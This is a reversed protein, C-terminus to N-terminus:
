YSREWENSLLIYAGGDLVCKVESLLEKAQAQSLNSGAVIAYTNYQDKYISFDFNIRNYKNELERVSSLAQAKDKHSEIIVFWNKNEKENGIFVDGGAWYRVVGNPYPIDAVDKVVFSSTPNLYSIQQGLDSGKDSKVPKTRLNMKTKSQLVDGKHPKQKLDKFYKSVFVNDHNSEGVYVWLDSSNVLELYIKKNKIQFRGDFVNEKNIKILENKLKELSNLKSYFSISKFKRAPLSQSSEDACWEYASTITIPSGSRLRLENMIGAIKFANCWTNMPPFIEVKKCNSDNVKNNVLFEKPEFFKHSKGEFQANFKEEFLQKELYFIDKQSKDLMSIVDNLNNKMRNENTMEGLFINKVIETLSSGIKTEALIIASEGDSSVNVDNVNSAAKVWEKRTILRSNELSFIKMKKNNRDYILLTSLDDSASFLYPNEDKYEAKIKSSNITEETVFNLTNFIKSYNFIKIKNSLVDIIVLAPDGNNAKSAVNLELNHFDSDAEFSPPFISGIKEYKWIMTKENQYIKFINGSDLTSVFLINESSASSIDAIRFPLKLSAAPFLDSMRAAAHFNDINVIYLTTAEEADYIFLDKSSSAIKPKSITPPLLLSLFKGSELDVKWVASSSVNDKSGTMYLINENEGLAISKSAKWDVIPLAFERKVILKGDVELDLLIGKGQDQSFLLLKNNSGPVFNVTDFKVKQNLTVEDKISYVTASSPDGLVYQFPFFWLLLLAFRIINKDTM